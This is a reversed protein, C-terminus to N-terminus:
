LTLFPEPKTVESHGLLSVHFYFTNDDYFDRAFSHLKVM